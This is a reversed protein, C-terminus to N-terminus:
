QFPTREIIVDDERPDVDLDSIFNYIQDAGINRTVMDRFSPRTPALVMENGGSRTLCDIIRVGGVSDGEVLATFIHRTSTSDLEMQEDLSTADLGTTPGHVVPNSGTSIDSPRVSLPPVHISNPSDTSM